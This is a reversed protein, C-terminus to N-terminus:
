SLFLLIYCHQRRHKDADLFLISAGFPVDRVARDRYVDFELRDGKHLVIRTTLLDRGSFNLMTGPHLLASSSKSSEEM